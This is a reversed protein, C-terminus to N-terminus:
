RLPETCRPCFESLDARLSSWLASCMGCIKHKCRPLTQIAGDDKYCVVCCNPSAVRTKLREIDEVRLTDRFPCEYKANALCTTCYTAHGCPFFTRQHSRNFTEGCAMCDVDMSGEYIRPLGTEERSTVPRAVPPNYSPNNYSHRQETPRAPASPTPRQTPQPAPTQVVPASPNVAADVLIVVINAAVEALFSWGNYGEQITPAPPPTHANIKTVLNNGILGQFIHKPLQFPSISEGPCYARINRWQQEQFQRALESADAKTFGRCIALEQVRETVFEIFAQLMTQHVLDAFSMQNDIAGFISQNQRVRKAVQQAFVILSGLTKAPHNKGALYFVAEAVYEELNEQTVNRRTTPQRRYQEYNASHHEPLGWGYVNTAILVTLALLAIQRKM